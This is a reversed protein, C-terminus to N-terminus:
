TPLDRRAFVALGALSGAAGVALLVLVDSWSLTGHVLAPAPNYYHFISLPDLPKLPHWLSAFYDVFYFVAFAGTAWGVARGSTNAAASGLLTLGGIAWALLATTIATPVFYRYIVTGAPHAIQLGLMIGVPAAVALVLSEVAIGLVRAAYVQLRSVPRALPLQITGREMEGALTRTAFGIIASAILVLFLPHTFGLTLYGALGSVTIFEPRTKVLAQFAPPLAQLLSGLAQPGGLSKAIIPQVLEFLTIGLLLAVFGVIGRRLLRETMRGVVSM